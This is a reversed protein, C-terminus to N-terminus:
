GIGKGLYARLAPPVKKQVLEKTLDWKAASDEDGEGTLLRALFKVEKGEKFAIPTGDKYLVRNSHIGPVRKSGGIVGTLNLPDAASISILQGEEQKRAKRLMPIAEPLAFQEGWVGDVFRGGRIEGRAEMQRFVRVMERWSPTIPDKEAMRRFVVGYRKLMIWAIDKLNAEEQPKSRGAPLCTLSWRGAEELKFALKQRKRETTKKVSPVLLARLGTYSDSSLMGATVLEGIGSEVQSPLLDTGNLLDDYFCAGHEQLVEFVKQAERSLKLEEDEVAQVGSGNNIPPYLCPRLLWKNGREVLSVPTTRIPQTKETTRGNQKSRGWIVRGSLCLDDLWQHDYEKMRAPLIDSEWAVAPAEYGQLQRVANALAEKGEAAKDGMGQWNFLFRMFVDSPVAEIERRLKQLTYRHMRALIRREVWEEEDGGAQGTPLRQTYNGRFIFGDNELWLLAQDTESQSLLADEAIEKATTPGIMEMRGRIIEVGPKDTTLEKLKEPLDLEPSWTAKPHIVQMEVLREAAVLLRKGQSSMWTARGVEILAAALPNQQMEAETLFGHLVLADHLEDIDGFRPFVEERVTEIALPDLHGLEKAEKPDMFQRTRVANTRREELPAPDLFAYPKANLIEHALPSPERLDRGIMEIEGAKIRKLLDELEDIDMAETLCDHITQEVLPHDPLEREGVINELCALQDPFVLAILDESNMRQIQAPVRKDWQRRLVALARSANWRWRIEFMPADLLAQVLVDRITKPDLYNFVEKIQFSHTSGLSLIIADETAAAQLEFNFKRCFRKRLSLGWARNMRSGFPSHIVLHMDGAEDFFREMVIRKRTPMAELAARSSGLYTVLQDAAEESMELDNMCWSVAVEKWSDTDNVQRGAPLHALQLRDDIEQRLRSVSVSLEKTRGPAEGLWFPISPPEGHADEVRVKGSEVRLIRYSTNGLQFIDGPMSEISFDENLSGIYTNSPEMVVDYDFNDPIAGGSILATQRAGKRAKLKGNVGDYHLYAGRRGRRTTYGEALMKVTLDYTKRKLNRFPYAGKYMEYMDDESYDEVGVEAVIQQSLIDVPREPMIVKDLEGRRVSDMIATCEVLEDLSLPFLRGKPTGDISHGSRGVRQLFAAISRPSGIQCVLDVHGIDIGLEMSATAVLVKLHGGKLRQEADFRHEKSMSGHHATVHKEGLRESLNFSLREALKRTNVFILTTKHEEILGVMRQYVESWVEASMVATLPSGPVEIALDMERKHGSDCIVCDPQGNSKTNKAGVLFHAVLDIPKQTASLGIRKLPKGALHDLRELSLALHSGRKDGVLAHIEDVIVTRATSLMKRGNIATLLLYLSEPTTVLIHPPKKTMKTREGAPTDGTRVAVRIGLDDVGQEKLLKKIGHLPVQLNREIDNSLAKLPSIYVVHTEDTLQGKEALHVLEDIANLFAALTKGSGTPAAILTHKGKGIAPWAEKQIPSPEGLNKSFWQSIAPHFNTLPM